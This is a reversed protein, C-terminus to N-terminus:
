KKRRKVIKGSTSRYSTAGIMDAINRRGKDTKMSKAIAEKIHKPIILKRKM